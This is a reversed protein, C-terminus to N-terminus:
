KTIKWQKKRDCETQCTLCFMRSNWRYSRGGGSPSWYESGNGSNRQLFQSNGKRVNQESEKHRGETEAPVGSLDFTNDLEEQKKKSNQQQEEKQQGLGNELMQRLMAEVVLSQELLKEWEKKRDSYAETQESDERPEEETGSDTVEEEKGHELALELGTTLEALLEAYACESETRTGAAYACLSTGYGAQVMGLAM